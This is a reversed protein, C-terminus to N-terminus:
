MKEPVRIGLLCLGNTLIITTSATLALRFRKQTDGNATLVSHKNYFSNFRQALEYLYTALIHPAYDKGAQYVVEPYRYLWRLLMTEEVNVEEMDFVDDVVIGSKKLVSRARVVSYQLYPGSNGEFSLSADFDFAIDKGIGQKLFAYKVAAQSIMEAVPVMNDDDTRGNMLKLVRAKAEDLVDEGKIIKGTRSSMKGEPLRVMGHGIHTTKNGLDPRYLRMACLVVDFYENIENGTVIVSADYVFDREKAVANGFDKCEYTPLGLANIFVRNHLGHKEGPFIVAGREGKEFIGKSLGDMVMGYGYEGTMSEPYYGKFETGLRSYIDEFYALSWARGEAYIERIQEYSYISPKVFQDYDVMKDVKFHPLVVEQAAKFALFNIQKMEEKAREDEEYATAGTSYAKGFYEVREKLPRGALTAMSTGDQSFLTLLGWLAKAVHMGVDGFYDARWVVAGNAELLRAVSEGVVNSYLHGVHFEKFPNPDTYEVVIRKQNLSNTSGYKEGLSLITRLESILFQESLYFNIFGPGAVVVKEVLGPKASAHMLDSQELKNKVTEAVERPSKGVQKSLILAVNTSYDGHNEDQPHELKFDPVGYGLSKLSNAIHQKLKDMMM